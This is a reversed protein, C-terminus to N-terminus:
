EDEQRGHEGHKPGATRSIIVRRMGVVLRRIGIVLARRQGEFRGVNTSGRLRGKMGEKGKELV